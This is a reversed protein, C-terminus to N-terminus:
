FILFATKMCVIVCIYIFFLNEYVCGCMSLLLPKLRLPRLPKSAVVCVYNLFIFFVTSM